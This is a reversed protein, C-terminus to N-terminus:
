KIKSIKGPIRSNNMSSMEFMGEANYMLHSGQDGMMMMAQTLNNDGGDTGNDTTETPLNTGAEQHHAAAIMNSISASSSQFVFQNSNSAGHM